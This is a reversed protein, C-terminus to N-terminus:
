PKRGKAATAIADRVTELPPPDRQESTQPEQERDRRRGAAEAALVCRFIYEACEKAMNQDTESIGVVVSKCTVCEFGLMPMVRGKRCNGCEILPERHSVPKTCLVGEGTVGPAQVIIRLTM